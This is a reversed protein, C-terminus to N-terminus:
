RCSEAAKLDMPWTESERKASPQSLLTAGVTSPFITHYTEEGRICGVRIFIVRGAPQECPFQQAM